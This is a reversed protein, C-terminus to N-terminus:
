VSRALGLRNRVQREIVSFLLKEILLGISCIVLISVFAAEFDLSWRAQILVYGLGFAVGVIMEAAILVRWGNALGIRLGDLIQLSSAPILVRFFVSSRSTGMMQASKLYISPVTRIGGATSIAITPLVTMFIMFITATEGLGFILLAIPIWALGPILQLITMPTMAIEHLIPNVGMAMGIITGLVVASVYGMGWRTLSSLTHEYITQDYLRAGSVLDGLRELTDWPAPFTIGRTQYVWMSILQWALLFVFIGILVIFLHSALIRRKGEGCDFHITGENIAADVAESEQITAGMPSHILRWDM